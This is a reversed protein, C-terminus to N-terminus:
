TPTPHRQSNSDAVHCSGAMKVEGFLKGSNKGEGFPKKRCTSPREDGMEELGERM